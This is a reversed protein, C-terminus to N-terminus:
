SSSVSTISYIIVVIIILLLLLGGWLFIKNLKDSKKAFPSGVVKDHHELENLKVGAPIQTTLASQQKKAPPAAPAAAAGPAPAPKGDDLRMEVKGLRLTQGPKLVAEKTQEGNIFTGNTSNLDKVLLEAGKVVLECHHSSVSPEAIQINNDDLRGVTAREGKVEYVTGALGESLVILKAM